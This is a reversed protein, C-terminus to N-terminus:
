FATAEEENGTLVEDDSLVFGGEVPELDKPEYEVLDVVMVKQLDNYFKKTQTGQFHSFRVHVESGGGIIKNPPWPNGQSDVTDPKDNPEGNTKEVYRWLSVFPGPITKSGDKITMGLRKAEELEEGEIMLDIKWRPKWTSDRGPDPRDTYIFYGKGKLIPM